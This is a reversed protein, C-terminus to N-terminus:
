PKGDVLNDRTGSADDGAPATDTDALVATQYVGDTGPAWCFVGDRGASALVLGSTPSRWALIERGWADSLDAGRHRYRLWGSRGDAATLQALGPAWRDAVSGQVVVAGDLATTGVDEHYAGLGRLDDITSPGLQSAITSRAAADWSDTLAPSGVLFRANAYRSSDYPRDLIGDGDRDSRPDAAVDPLLRQGDLGPAIGLRTLRQRPLGYLLPWGGAPESAFGSFRDGPLLVQPRASSDVQAPIAPTLAEGTVAVAAGAAYDPTSGDRIWALRPATTRAAPHVVPAIGSGREAAHLGLGSRITALIAATRHRKAAATLPGAAGLVLGMLTLLIAIAVLLEILTVGRKVM